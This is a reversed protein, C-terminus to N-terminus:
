LRLKSAPRQSRGTSALSKVSSAVLDQVDCPAPDLELRGAEIKSFDLIDNLVTLLSGASRKVTELYYRQEATLETGLAIETMGLVGNMPTRIEHSMNALFESKARDAAEAAQKAELLEKTQLRVRRRLSLTWVLVM